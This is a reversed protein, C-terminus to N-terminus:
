SLHLSSPFFPSPFLFLTLLSFSIFVVNDRASPIPPLLSPLLVLDVVGSVRVTANEGQRRGGAGGTVAVGLGGGGVSVRGCGVVTALARGGERGGEGEVRGDGGVLALLSSGGRTASGRGGV